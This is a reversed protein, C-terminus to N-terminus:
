YLPPGSAVGPARDAPVWAGEITVAPEPQVQTLGGTPGGIYIAGM